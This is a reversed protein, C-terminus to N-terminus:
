CPAGAIDAQLALGSLTTTATRQGEAFLRTLSLMEPYDRCATAAARLCAASHTSAILQVDLDRLLCTVTQWLPPLYYPDLRDCFDDILLVQGRSSHLALIATVITLASQGLAELPVTADRTRCIVAPHDAKAGIHPELDLVAPVLPELDRLAAAKLGRDDLLMLCTATFLPTGWTAPTDFGRGGPDPPTVRGGTQYSLNGHGDVGDPLATCHLSRRVGDQTGHLNVERTPSLATLPNDPVRAGRHPVFARLTQASAKRNLFLWAAELVSTKGSAARGSLLSAQRLGDLHTNALGRYRDITFDSLANPNIM